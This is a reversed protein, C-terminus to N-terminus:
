QLAKLRETIVKRLYPTLDKGERALRFPAEDHVVTEKEGNVISIIFDEELVEYHDLLPKNELLDSNVSRYVIQGEECEQQYEEKLLALVANGIISCDNCQVTHHFHLMDVRIDPPDKDEWMPLYYEVSKVLEKM